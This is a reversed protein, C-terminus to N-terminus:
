FNSTMLAHYCLSEPSLDEQFQTNIQGVQFIFVILSFLIGLVSIVHQEKLIPCDGPKMLLLGGHTM